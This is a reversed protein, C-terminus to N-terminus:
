SPKISKSLYIRGAMVESIAPGSWHDEGLLGCLRQLIGQHDDALLVRIKGM